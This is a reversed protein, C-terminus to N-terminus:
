TEATKRFVAMFKVTSQNLAVAAEEVPAAALGPVKRGRMRENPGHLKSGGTAQFDIAFSDRRMAATVNDREVPMSADLRGQVAIVEVLRAKQGAEVDSRGSLRELRDTADIDLRVRGDAIEQEGRRRACPRARGAIRGAAPLDDSLPDLNLDVGEDAAAPAQVDGHGVPRQGLCGHRQAEQELGIEGVGALDRAALPALGGLDAPAEGCRFAPRAFQREGILM